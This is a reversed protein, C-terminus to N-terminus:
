EGESYFHDNTYNQENGSGIPLTNPFETNGISVGLSLMTKMSSQANSVLSGSVEVDYSGALQLATNYIIGLVAGDPVTAVDSPNVLNTWGLSVGDANLQQMYRNLYRLATQFDISQISQEDAQVFIEQLIDKVLSQATEM